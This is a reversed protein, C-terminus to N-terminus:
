STPQAPVKGTMYLSFTVTAGSDEASTQSTGVASETVQTSSAPRTTSTTVAVANETQTSTTAPRSTSTTVSVSKETTTRTTPTTTRTTTSSSAGENTTNDTTGGGVQSDAGTPTEVATTQSPSVVRHVTQRPQIETTTNLSLDTQRETKTSGKSTVTTRSTAGYDQESLITDTLWQVSM